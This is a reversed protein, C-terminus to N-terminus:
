LSAEYSQTKTVMMYLSYSLLRDHGDFELGIDGLDKAERVAVEFFDIALISLLKWAKCSTLM